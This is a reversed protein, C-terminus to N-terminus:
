EESLHNFQKYRRNDATRRIMQCGSRVQRRSLKIGDPLNGWNAANNYFWSRSPFQSLSCVKYVNAFNEILGRAGDWSRNPRKVLRAFEARDADTLVLEDFFHGLEHYFTRITGQRHMVIQSTEFSSCANIWSGPKRNLYCIGRINFSIEITADPTPMRSQNVWHQYPRISHEPM